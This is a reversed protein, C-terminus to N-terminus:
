QPVAPVGLNRPTGVLPQKGDSSGRLYNRVWEAEAALADGRRAFVGIEVPSASGTVPSVDVAWAGDVTPEVRGARRTTLDFAGALAEYLEDSYVFAVGGDPEIVVEAETEPTSGTAPEKRSSKTNM